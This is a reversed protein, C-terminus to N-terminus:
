CMSIYVCLVCVCVCVCLSHFIHTYIDVYMDMNHPSLLVNEM